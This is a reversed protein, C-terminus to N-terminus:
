TCLVPMEATTYGPVVDTANLSWTHKKTGAPEGAAQTMGVRRGEDKYCASAAPAACLCHCWPAAGAASFLARPPTAPGSQSACGGARLAKSAMACAANM